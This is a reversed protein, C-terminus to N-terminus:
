FTDTGEICKSSGNATSGVGQCLCSLENAYSKSWVQGLTPHKRLQRYELSKGTTYDLVSGAFHPQSFASAHQYNSIM